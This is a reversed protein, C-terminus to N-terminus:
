FLFGVTSLSASWLFISGVMYVIIKQKDRYYRVALFSGVPISLFLPTLLAIGILGYRNKIYVIAKNRRTFRRKSHNKKPFIEKWKRIAWDSMYTFGVMGLVAGATTIVITELFSFSLAIALPIGGAVLKISSLLFVSVIIWFDNM